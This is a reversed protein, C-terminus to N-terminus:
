SLAFQTVEEFEFEIVPAEDDNTILLLKFNGPSDPAIISEETFYTPAIYYAEKIYADEFDIRSVLESIKDINLIEM